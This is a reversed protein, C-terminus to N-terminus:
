TPRRPPRPPAPQSAVPAPEAPAAAPAPPPAPERLPLLTLPDVYGNEDSTHRVGLHVHPERTVADDSSGVSGLIMGEDVVGGRVVNTEGLQLLTVSYGEDTRITIARGGNPVTGVFSVAGSRPARVATGVAAAIDIGRHQGGAYPNSGVSFPRLLPGDVPWTWAHARPAYVLTLLTVLAALRLM